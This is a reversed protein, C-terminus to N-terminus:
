IKELFEIPCYDDKFAIAIHNLKSFNMVMNDDYEKFYEDETMNEYYSKNLLINNSNSNYYGYFIDIIKRQLIEDNINIRYIDKYNLLEKIKLGLGEYPPYKFFYIYSLGYKGRFINLADIIEERTLSNEDRNKYKRINWDKVIRTKYKETNKDFLNFMKNDYMYKLSLLGISVDASKDVVHYFYLPINLKILKQSECYKYFESCNIHSQPKQYEYVFTYADDSINHSNIFKDKVDLLLEKENQYEHIGKYNGWSHEFWYHKDEKKYTLFTHSPLSDGNQTYIFYTKTNINQEEFLKRELEVQDFCVGCNKELLEEPTLLYYFNEFEEDWKNPNNEIINLGNEDKFGYEINDMIGMINNEMMYDGVYYTKM